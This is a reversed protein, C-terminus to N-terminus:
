CKAPDRGSNDDPRAVRDDEGSTSVCPTPVSTSTAPSPSQTPAAPTPSQAPAAPSPSQTPAAPTPSPTSAAPTPSPTSTGSSPSKTPTGSSPTQTSSAPIPAKPTTPTPKVTVSTSPRPIAPPAVPTAAPKRASPLTTPAPSSRRAASAPVAKIPQAPAGAAPTSAASSRAPRDSRPLDSRPLDFRPLNSAPLNSAPLNSAPLNSGRLDSGPLDSAPLDSASLDSVLLDSAPLADVGPRYMSAIGTVKQVYSDSANYRLIAARLDGQQSLDGPGSCLYIASAAAADAMSQPNKVGDGDADAGAVRWTSPIFQMPGVARDFVNDRDLLGGDSDTIRATGNSGNLPIGIIGPQAVGASDLQNGGFRAHNSEVSGIAALLAWDINCDPDASDILSVALRYGELARVPIGTGDPTTPRSDAFVIGSPVVLAPALPAAVPAAAAVPDGSTQATAASSAVGVPGSLPLEPLASPRAPISPTPPLAPNASISPITLPVEPVVIAPSGNPAAVNKIISTPEAQATLAIGGGIMAVAPLAACVKWWNARPAQARSSESM